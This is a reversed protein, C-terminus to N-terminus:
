APIYTDHKTLNDTQWLPQLNTHHFCLRQDAENTLDFAACPKIHDIHWKDNGFGHNEWSMGPQWKDEIYKKLFEYDCGLMEWTHLRKGGKIAANMRSLLIKYMRRQPNNKYEREYIADKNKAYYEKQCNRYLERNNKRYNRHIQQLKEKNNEQWKKISPLSQINKCSKCINRYGDKSSKRKSFLELDKEEDCHICTKKM